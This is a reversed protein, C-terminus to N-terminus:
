IVEIDEYRTYVSHDGTTGTKVDLGGRYRDWGMLEVTQGLMDCFEQLEPTSLNNYM